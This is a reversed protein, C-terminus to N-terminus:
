GCRGRSCDRSASSCSRGRRRVRRDDRRRVTAARVDGGTRPEEAVDAETMDFRRAVDALPVEGVEMLWPLMVLLRQLREEAKRLPGPEDDTGQRGRRRRHAVHRRARLTPPDLVVAHELLGLVWSRFADLNDAPVLLEVSGDDHRRVVRDEGLERVASAARGVDILVIADVSEDPSRGSRSPIPRSVGVASRLPLANSRERRGSASRPAGGDFRDVRFTRQEERDHDHGVVYWFGGRLLLGWPDLHRTPAATASSSRRVRRSRRGCCRCNPGTRCAPRFPHNSTTSHAASSGSRRDARQGVRDAGRRRRGAAGADRRTRSRSRGARVQASRDPLPDSRRVARGRPDRHRDPHRARAAGGQRARVGAAARRGSEPYQGDLEAAIEVLSLPESTELLLALLNTLREVRDAM